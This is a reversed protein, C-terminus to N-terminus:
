QVRRRQRAQVHLRTRNRGGAVVTLVASPSIWRRNGKTRERSAATCIVVFASGRL